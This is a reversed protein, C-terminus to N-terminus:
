LLQYATLLTYYATLRNSSTVMLNNLNTVVLSQRSLPYILAGLEILSPLFKMVLVSVRKREEIEREQLERNTERENKGGKGKKRVRIEM